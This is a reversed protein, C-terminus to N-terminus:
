NFTIDGGKDGVWPQVEFEFDGKDPNYSVEVLINVFDNRRIETVDTVASTRNDITQLVVEVSKRAGTGYEVPYLEFGAEAADFAYTFNQPDKVSNYLYFPYYASGYTVSSFAFTGTKGSFSVGFPEAYKEGTGVCIFDANNMAVYDGSGNILYYNGGSSKLQWLFSLDGGEVARRIEAFSMDAAQIRANPAEYMWRGTSVARFLYRHEWDIDGATLPTDSVSVTEYDDVGGYGLDITYRYKENKDDRSASIYADFVAATQGQKIVPQGTGVEGRPESDAVIYYREDPGPRSVAGTVPDHLNTNYYPFAIVSEAYAVDPAGPTYDLGDFIYAAGPMRCFYTKDKSFNDSFTLGYVDLPQASYNRVEVRVRAYTRYLSIPEAIDNAGPQLDVYGVTFLPLADLKKRVYPQRVNGNEDKYMAVSLVYDYFGALSAGFDSIGKGGTRMFDHDNMTDDSLTMDDDGYFRHIVAHLQRVFGNRGAVSPHDVASDDPNNEDLVPLSGYNAVAMIVYKGHRLREVDGHLPHDYNFTLRVKDSYQLGLDVAGADNVFGNGGEPEDDTCLLPMHVPKEAGDPNIVHRYAVMEGSISDILMVTLRRITRGDALLEEETWNEHGDPDIMNRTGIAARIDSARMTLSLSAPQREAHVRPAPEAADRRCGAALLLLVALAAYPLTNRIKM